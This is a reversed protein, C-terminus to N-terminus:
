DLCSLFTIPSPQAAAEASLRIALPGREQGHSCVLPDGGNATGDELLVVVHHGPTAGFVALDGAKAAAKPIHRCHALLTGTYGTGNYDNGNPDPADAYAYADTAFESCDADRPLKRLENPTHLREMPRFQAYHIQPENQIGWRCFELIRARQLTSSSPLPAAQDVTVSGFRKIWGALDKTIRAPTARRVIVGGKPGRIRFPM